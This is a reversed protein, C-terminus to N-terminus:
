ARLSASQSWHTPRHLHAGAGAGVGAGCWVCSSSMLTARGTVSAVSSYRRACCCVWCASCNLRCSYSRACWGAGMRRQLSSGGCPLSPRGQQSPQQLPVCVSAVAPLLRCASWLGLVSSGQQRVCSSPGGRVCLTVGCWWWWPVRAAGVACGGAGACSGARHAVISCAGSVGPSASRNELFCAPIRVPQVSPSPSPLLGSPAVRSPPVPPQEMTPRGGPYHALPQQCAQTRGAAAAWATCAGWWRGAQVPAGGDTCSRGRAARGPGGAPRSCRQRRATGPAAPQLQPATRGWSADLM